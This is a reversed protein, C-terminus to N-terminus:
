KRSFYKRVSDDTEFEEFRSVLLELSADLWLGFEEETRVTGLEVADSGSVQASAALKQQDGKENTKFM